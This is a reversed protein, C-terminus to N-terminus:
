FKAGPAHPKLDRIVASGPQSATSVSPPNMGAAPAPRFGDVIAPPTMGPGTQRALAQAGPNTSMPPLPSATVVPDKGYEDRLADAGLIPTDARVSPPEPTVVTRSDGVELDGMSPEVPKPDVAPPYPDYEPM